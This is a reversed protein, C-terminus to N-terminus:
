KYIRNHAAYQIVCAFYLCIFDAISQNSLIFPSFRSYGTFLTYDSFAFIKGASHFSLFIYKRCPFLPIIITQQQGTCAHM